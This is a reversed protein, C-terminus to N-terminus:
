GIKEWETGEAPEWHRAKVENEKHDVTQVTLRGAPTGWGGDRRELRSLM